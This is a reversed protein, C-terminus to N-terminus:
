KTPPKPLPMWHTIKNVHPLSDAKYNSVVWEGQRNFWCVVQENFETLCLVYDSEGFKEGVEPLGDEVATWGQWYEKAAPSTAGAIFYQTTLGMLAAGTFTLESTEKEGAEIWTDEGYKEAAEQLQKDNM